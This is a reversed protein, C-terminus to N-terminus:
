KKRWLKDVLWKIKQEQFCQKCRGPNKNINCKGCLKHQNMTFYEVFKKDIGYVFDKKSMM